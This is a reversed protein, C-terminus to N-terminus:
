PCFCCRAQLNLQFNYISAHLLVIRAVYRFLSYLAESDVQLSNALSEINEEIFVRRNEGSFGNWLLFWDVLTRLPIALLPGALSWLVKNEEELADLRESLTTAKLAARCPSLYDFTVPGAM